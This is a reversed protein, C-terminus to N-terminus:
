ARLLVVLAGHGGDAPRAQVYAMVEEKQVLWRKVKDKLVPTRGPSGHGKGHIVRVCRLRRQVAAKFFQNLVERAQDRRLGHLDLQAQISWVGRRLRKLVDPGVNSRRFSLSDDTDLLAEVDMEDSLAELLVAAEDKERQVPEPLPRPRDLLARAAQRLPSVEGVTRAFLEREHAEQAARLRALREAEAAQALARKVDSLAQLGATARVLRHTNRPM